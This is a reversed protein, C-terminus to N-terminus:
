PLYRNIKRLVLAEKEKRNKQMGHYYQIIMTDDRSELKVHVFDKEKQSLYWQFGAEQLEAQKFILEKLHWYVKSSYIPNFDDTRSSARTFDGERFVFRFVWGNKFFTDTFSNSLDQYIVAKIQQVYDNEIKNVNMDQLFARIKDDTDPIVRSNLLREADESLDRFLKFIAKGAAAENISVINLNLPQFTSSTLLLQKLDSILKKKELGYQELLNLNFKFLIARHEVDIKVGAFFNIEGRTSRFSGLKLLLNISKVDNNVAEIRTTCLQFTGNIHKNTLSSNLLLNDFKKLYTEADIVRMNDQIFFNNYRYLYHVNMKSYYLQDFLFQDIVEPTIESTKWKLEEMLINLIPRYDRRDSTHMRKDINQVKNQQFFDRFENKQINRLTAETFM